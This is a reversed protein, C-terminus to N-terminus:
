DGRLRGASRDIPDPERLGFWRARLKDWLALRSWDPEEPSQGDGRRPLSQAAARHDATRRRMRVIAMGVDARLEHKAPSLARRAVHTQATCTRSVDAQARSGKNEGICVHFHTVGFAVALCGDLLRIRTPAVTPTSRGRRAKFSRGSSSRAGTINSFTAFSSKSVQRIRDAALLCRAGGWRARRHTAANHKADDDASTEM